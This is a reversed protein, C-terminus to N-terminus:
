GELKYQYENVFLWFIYPQQLVLCKIGPHDVMWHLTVCHLFKRFKEGGCFPQMLVVLENVLAIDFWTWLLCAAQYTETDSILVPIDHRISLMINHQCNYLPPPQSGPYLICISFNLKLWFSFKRSAREGSASAPPSLVLLLAYTLVHSPLIFSVTSINWSNQYLYCKNYWGWCFTLWNM